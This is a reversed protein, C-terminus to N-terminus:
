FPNTAGRIEFHLHAGTSRGTNGSLAIVQGQVVSSGASVLTESLHGYVTQTGNSCQIVIYDGYGGNWGSNRSVMVSGPCSALIQTGVPTSIDVGNYGHLGQSKRGGILPRLYYGEVVPGGASKVLKTNGKSSSGSSVSPASAEVGDPIVITDGVALSAGSSLNNFDLVDKMDGKYKKVIGALTEGKLVTHEVGTVPLIVLTDGPHVSKASTLNNAWLITNVSVDFMGAIESLSDGQRVVYISIQSSVPKQEEIDALTGEPGAESVLAVGGVISIDGGGKAPNPDVNVAAKLAPTKSASFYPAPDGSLSILPSFFNSLSSFSFAQAENFIGVCSFFILVAIFVSRYKRQTARLGSHSLDRANNNEKEIHIGWELSLRVPTEM